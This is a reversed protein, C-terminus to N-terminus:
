DGLEDEDPLTLDIEQPALPATSTAASAQAKQEAAALAQALNQRKRWIVLGLVGLLLLSINITIIWFIADDKAKAEAIRAKKAAIRALEAASPPPDPPAILNFFHEPLDIVVERGAPTTSALFGTVRYSGFETAQPLLLDSSAESFGQQVIPLRLGAPGFLEFRVHTQALVLQTDDIELHLKRRDKDTGDLQMLTVTVPSPSLSFPLNVQRDFVNNHAKVEFVYDGWPQNLNLKATFVGDDPREDLGEGDDSYSGVILTGSAFNEDGAQHTSIFRASWEFLYDLGPMRLRQADGMLKAVLKVREGQFLPQPLPEVQIELKSIKDITSGQTVRGLLQWPGPMPNAITIMDGSLGDVWKVTDPHRSTYWKSGDPLILIVPASGYDRKILLTVSDVMHDIRFRNKLEAAQTAQTVALVASPLCCCLLLAFLRMPLTM